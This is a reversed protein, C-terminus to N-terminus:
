SVCANDARRRTRVTRTPKTTLPWEVRVPTLKGPFLTVLTYPERFFRSSPTRNLRILTILHTLNKLFFPNLVLIPDAFQVRHLRLNNIKHWIEGRPYFHPKENSLVTKHGMFLCRSHPMLRPLYGGRKDTYNVIDSLTHCLRVPRPTLPPLQGGLEPLYVVNIRAFSLVNTQSVTDGRVSCTDM